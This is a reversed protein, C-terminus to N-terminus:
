EEIPDLRADPPIPTGDLASEDLDEIDVEGPTDPASLEPSHIRHAGDDDLDSALIVDYAPTSLDADPTAEVESLSQDDMDARAIEDDIETQLANDNLSVDDTTDDIITANLDTDFEPGSDTAPSGAPPTYKDTAGPNSPQINM